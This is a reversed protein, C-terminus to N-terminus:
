GKIYVVHGQRWRFFFGLACTMLGVQILPAFIFLGLPAAILFSIFHFLFFLGALFDEWAPRPAAASHRMMSAAMSGGTIVLVVFEILISILLAKVFPRISFGLLRPRKRETIRLSPM